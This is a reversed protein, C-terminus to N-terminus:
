MRELAIITKVAERNPLFREPLKWVIWNALRYPIRYRAHIIDASICRRDLNFVFAKHIEIQETIITDMATKQATNMEKIAADLKETDFWESIDNM